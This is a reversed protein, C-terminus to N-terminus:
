RTESEAANWIDTHWKWGDTGKKWIVVYKVHAPSAPQTTVLEAAGIEIATDGLIQLDLTQLKLSKVNLTSVAQKWFATIHDLGTLMAAGPPLIRADSSYVKSLADFNGAAVVEDEFIANVQRFEQRSENQAM